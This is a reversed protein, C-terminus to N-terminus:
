ELVSLFSWIELKLGFSEFGSYYFEGNLDFSVCFEVEIKGYWHKEFDELSPQILLLGSTQPDDYITWESVVTLNATTLNHDFNKLQLYPTKENKGRGELEFKTLGQNGFVALLAIRVHNYWFSTCAKGLLEPTILQSVSNIQTAEYGSNFIMENALDDLNKGTIIPWTGSSVHGGTKNGQEWGFNECKKLKVPITAIM